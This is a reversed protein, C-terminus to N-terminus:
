GIALSLTAHCALTINWENRDHKEFLIQVKIPGFMKWCHDSIPKIVKRPVQDWSCDNLDVTPVTYLACSMKLM